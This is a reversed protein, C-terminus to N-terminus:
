ELKNTNWIGCESFRARVCVYVYPSGRLRVARVVYIYDNMKHTYATVVYLHSVSVGVVVIVVTVVVVFWCFVDVIAYLISIYSTCMIYKELVELWHWDYSTRSDSRDLSNFHKHFKNKKKCVFYLHISREHESYLVNGAPVFKYIKVYMVNIYKCMLQVYIHFCLTNPSLSKHADFSYRFQNINLFM